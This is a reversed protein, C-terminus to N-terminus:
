TKKLASVSVKEAPALAKFPPQRGGIKYVKKLGLVLRGQAMSPEIEIGM